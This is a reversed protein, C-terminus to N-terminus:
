RRTDTASCEVTKQDGKMRRLRDPHIGTGVESGKQGEKSKSEEEVRKKREVELNENKGKIKGMRVEGKGGGGATLEM